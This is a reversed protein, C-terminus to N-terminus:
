GPNCPGADVIQRRAEYAAIGASVSLNLSRAEERIPIYLCRDAFSERLSPPLGQTESGFVLADGARFAATTYLRPAKKSFLWPGTAAAPLGACLANWDDVIELDLHEWYDLGARRVRRDSVHFGLPRVMWLKAGLAVCTRGVAGANGPIEPEFLVINLLPESVDLPGRL